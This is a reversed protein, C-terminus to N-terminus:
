LLATEEHETKQLYNIDLAGLLLWGAGVILPITILWIFIIIIKGWLSFKQM